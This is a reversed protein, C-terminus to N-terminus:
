STEKENIEKFFDLIEAIKKRDKVGKQLEIGSSLDFYNCNLATAALINGINLGGSLFYPLKTNYNKMLSWDFVQGSGGHEKTKTDFLLYEVNDSTTKIPDLNFKDSVAVSKIIKENNLNKTIYNNDEIGHLQFFDPDLCAKIDSLYESSANVTVAVKKIDKTILSNFKKALDLSIHRPSSEYFVFGLFNPQYNYSLIFDLIDLNNIGCLKIHKKM